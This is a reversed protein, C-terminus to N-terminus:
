PGRWTRWAVQPRLNFCLKRRVSGRMCLAARVNGTVRLAAAGSCLGIADEEDSGILLVDMPFAGREDKKGAEEFPAKEAVAGGLGVADSGGMTAEAQGAAAGPGRPGGEKDQLGEREPVALVDGSRLGGALVPVRLLEPADASLAPCLAM